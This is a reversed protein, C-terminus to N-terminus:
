LTQLITQHKNNNHREKTHGAKGQYLSREDNSQILRHRGRLPNSRGQERPNGYRELDTEHLQRWSNNQTSEGSGTQGSNEQFQEYSTTRTSGVGLFPSPLSFSQLVRSPCLPTTRSSTSPRTQREQPNKPHICFKSYSPLASESQRIYALLLNTHQATSASDLNTFWYYGFYPIGKSSFSRDLPLQTYIHPQYLM